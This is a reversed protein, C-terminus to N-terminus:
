GIRMHSLDPLSSSRRLSDPNARTEPGCGLGCRATPGVELACDMRRDTSLAAHPGWYLGNQQTYVTKANPDMKSRIHLRPMQRKFNYENTVISRYNYFDTNDAGSGLIAM